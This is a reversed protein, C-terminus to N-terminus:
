SAGAAPRPLAQRIGSTGYIFGATPFDPGKVGLRGSEADDVM